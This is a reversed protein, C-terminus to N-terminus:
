FSTKLYRYKLFEVSGLETINRVIVHQFYSKPSVSTSSTEHLSRAKVRGHDQQIEIVILQGVCSLWTSLDSTNWGGPM